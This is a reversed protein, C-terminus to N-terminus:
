KGGVAILSDQTRFFIAGESVAPTSLVSEGLTSVNDIEFEGGAKIVLVRGDESTCYLRGDAAIPSATFSLSGGEATLRKKYVVKGSTAFYCSLVGDNSCCYLYDGYVIPSPMYPGGRRVSWTIAENTSTKNVLSIDGRAEPKVAYIPRIPTYGSAVFILGRAVSPTPVVIESNGKLTWLLSGDRADYGRAAKTGNTVLVPMDGFTHVVPTSWTPIEERDTRWVDKGTKLDLSAIFSQGQIDCQIIVNDGHIVPSSAFGWQYGPDYFWGSDLFGLDRKWILDGSNSYCYLGESGFFAVVQEGNTAVTPNAHSSKAHRKVAPIAKNATREWIMEGSSKSFCLLKFEYENKEEISDVSGYLGIKLGGEQGESVATTLYIHDDWITPCSLGLGPVDTKWLLNEPTEGDAKFSAPPNQGDAVGRSENGRFGPWNASAIALDARKSASSSTGFKVSESGPLESEPTEPKSTSDTKLADGKSAKVPKAIAENSGFKFLVEEVNGDAVKFQIDNTGMSFESESNIALAQKAGGNFSVELKGEAHSFEVKFQESEYEGAYLGLTKASVVVQKSEAINLPAFIGVLAAQQEADKVAKAADRAKVLGKDTALKLELLQGVFESNGAGVAALLIGDVGKGGHKLLNLVIAKNDNGASWSIPTANYFTDKANPDAGKELLLNVVAEHERDCAFLLATAGYDSKADVGIGAALAVKVAELDGARAARRFQEEAQKLIQDVDQGAEAVAPKSNSGEQAAVQNAPSAFCVVAVLLAFWRCVLSPYIM